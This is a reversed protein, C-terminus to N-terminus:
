VHARGIQYESLEKETPLQDGSKLHNNKIYELIGAKVNEYALM